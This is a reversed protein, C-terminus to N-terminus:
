AMSLPVLLCSAVRKGDVVAPNIQFQRALEAMEEDKLRDGSPEAMVASITKASADVCVQTVSIDQKMSSQRPMSPVFIVTPPTGGKWPEPLNAIEAATTPATITIPLLTCGSKPKGRAIGASFQSMSVVAAAIADVRPNGSSEKLVVRTIRGKADTCAQLKATGTDGARAFPIKSVVRDVPNVVGVKMLTRPDPSSTVVPEESPTPQADQTWSAASVALGLFLVPVHVWQRNRNVCKNM